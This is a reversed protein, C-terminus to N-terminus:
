INQTHKLGIHASKQVTLGLVNIKECVLVTVVEFKSLNLIGLLAVFM